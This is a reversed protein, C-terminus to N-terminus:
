AARRGLGHRRRVATARSNVEHVACACACPYPQVTMFEHCHKLNINTELAAANNRAFVSLAPTLAVPSSKAVSGLRCRRFAMPHRMFRSPSHRGLKSQGAHIFWDESCCQSGFNAGNYPSYTHTLHKRVPGFRITAHHVQSRVTAAEVSLAICSRIARTTGEAADSTGERRMWTKVPAAWSCCWGALWSTSGLQEQLADPQTTDRLSYCRRPPGDICVAHERARRARQQCSTGWGQRRNRSRQLRGPVTRVRLAYTTGDIVGRGSAPRQLLNGDSPLSAVHPPTHTAPLLHCRTRRCPAHSSSQCVRRGAIICPVPHLARRRVDGELGAVVVAPGGGAALGQHIGADGPHTGRNTEPGCSVRATRLM